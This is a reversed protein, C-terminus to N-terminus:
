LYKIRKLQKADVSTADYVYDFRPRNKYSTRIVWIFRPLHTTLIEEKDNIQQKQLQKKYKRISFLYLEWNIDSSKVKTNQNKLFSAVDDKKRDLHLYIYSFGLRIKPYIPVLLCHLRVSEYGYERIWENDWFEFSGNIPKVTSYPGIQDDHVYLEELNRKENTQYGSILTAHHSTAHYADTPNKYINLKNNEKKVTLDETRDDGITLIVKEEKENILIKVPKEDNSIYITKGDNTKLIKPNEALEIALEDKLHSLLKQSDTGPIDDWSFLYPKKLELFAILPLNAGIYAKVVIPIRRANVRNIKVVELDLGISKIYDGMQTMDLGDSPFRRALSSSRTAVETIEAPSHYPLGFRYLLHRTVSWLAVTACASVGQDQSQSPLSEVDLPIGFLSAYYEQKAFFRLKGNEKLSRIKLVTRGLSRCDGGISKIVVFGLYSDCLPEYKGKLSEKFTELSIEGKFFHIRKTFREYKEFSRSYFKQYDVLYDRDVYEEELICTEADICDLYRLLYKGHPIGDFCKNLKKSSFPFPHFPIKSCQPQFSM